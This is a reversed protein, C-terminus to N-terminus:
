RDGAKLPEAKMEAWLPLDCQRAKPTPGLIWQHGPDVTRYEGANAYCYACGNPCTDYAGIDVSDACGCGARLRAKPAAIEKGAVRSLREPDVCHARSVGEVELDPQACTSLKIGKDYAIAAIRRLLDTRQGLSPQKPVISRLALSTRVHNYCHLFSVVCENSVGELLSSIATFNRIHWAADMDATLIIPDYRWVVRCAGYEGAIRDMNRAATIYTPSGPELAIPYGTVTHQVVFPTGRAHVRKLVPLFPEVDKTWFVFALVDEPALSVSRPPSKASSSHLAIGEGLRKAFWAGHHAPIDTRYSASIIKPRAKM